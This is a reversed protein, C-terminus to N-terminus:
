FMKVQVTLKGPKAQDLRAPGADIAAHGHAPRLARPQHGGTGLTGKGANINRVLTDMRATTTTLQTTLHTLGATASDMNQM